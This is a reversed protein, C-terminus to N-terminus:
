SWLPSSVPFFALNEVFFSVSPAGQQLSKHKRLSGTQNKDAELAGLGYTGM